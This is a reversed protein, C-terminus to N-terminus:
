PKLIENYRTPDTLINIAEVVEADNRLGMQVRGRQYYYRSAIEKEIMKIIEMKYENIAATQQADITAQLANLERDLPYGETSAEEMAKELLRETESTFAYDGESLFSMFNDWDTFRFETVTDITPRDLVWQNVYDFLINNQILSKTVPNDGLVPLEVDPAVGGGDLVPRGARTQFVARQDDPIDVPEGNVYNLAQICRNSPIYYKATTIKVRSSYGTEMINQVLGKGYTQQGIIVARDLDQLAGSVIESASASRGNVLVAVPMELDLPNGNTKYSRDWERVKGRTSVILEDRPVWINVIDVAENLLGGGNYRLDLVVGQMGPNEARLEQVADRVNKAAQRTFTTLAVYGVNQDLMGYYPVNQINLDGRTLSIDVQGSGPRDVVLEMVTGPFGRMIEELQELNKGETNQGDVELIRDGVKLGAQDAPQDRFLELITPRGDLLRMDAGIGQYQGSQRLRAREVDSESIFNTYPDLSSVMAEIGIRMLQSPEVEDVYYTNLEKYVNTYIEISKMMEFYRDNTPAVTSALGILGILAALGGAMRTTWQNM